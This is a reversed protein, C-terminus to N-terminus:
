KEFPGCSLRVAHGLVLVPVVVLVLVVLVLALLEAVAGIHGTEVMGRCDAVVWCSGAVEVEIELGLWFVLELVFVPKLAVVDWDVISELRLGVPLGVSFGVSEVEVTNGTDASLEM